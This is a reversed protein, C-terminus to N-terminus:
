QQPHSKHQQAQSSAQTQTQSKQSSVPGSGISSKMRASSFTGLFIGVIHHDMHILHHLLNCFPVRSHVRLCLHRRLVLRMCHQLRHNCRQCTLCCRWRRMRSHTQTHRSHIQRLKFHKSNVDVLASHVSHGQQGLDDSRPPVVVAAAAERWPPHKELLLSKTNSTKLRKEAMKISTQTNSHERTNELSFTM